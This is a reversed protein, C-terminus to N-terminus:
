YTDITSAEALMLWFTMMITLLGHDGIYPLGRDLRHKDSRNRQNREWRSRLPETPETHATPWIIKQHM